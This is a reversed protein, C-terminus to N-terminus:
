DALPTSSRRCSGETDPLPLSAFMGFRGPYDAVLNASYENCSRALRGAQVKDGFWIGPTSMSFIATEVNNRDMEAIAREPSWGLWNPVIRGGGQAAIVDKVEEFWFPPVIHHHVDVIGGKAGAGQAMLARTGAATFLAALGVGFAARRTLSHKMCGCGSTQREDCTETVYSAPSPM